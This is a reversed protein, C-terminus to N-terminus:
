PAEQPPAAGLQPLGSVQAAPEVQQEPLLIVVHHLGGFSQKRNEKM